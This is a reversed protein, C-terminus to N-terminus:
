EYQAKYEKPTLGTIKKFIYSFYAPDQYGVQEAIEYTLCNSSALMEKAKEIRSLNIYETISQGSEKKFIRSLYSANVHLADAIVKLHLTYQLHTDIYEVAQIVIKSYSNQNGVLNKQLYEMFVNIIDELEYINKADGIHQIITNDPGKIGKKLLIRFGIYFIQICINKVDAPNMFKTKIQSFLISIYKKAGTFNFHIIESELEYLLLTEATSLSYDPTEEQDGLYSINSESYFTLSLAYIAETAAINFEQMTHHRRSIGISIQQQYLSFIIDSIEQYIAPLDQAASYDTEKPCYIFMVFHNYRYCYGSISQAMIIEKLSGIYDQTTMLQFATIYYDTLAIGYQDLKDLFNGPEASLTLEQFLQERLFTLESEKLSDKQYSIIMSEQIQQVSAILKDKAVPKIIYDSVGYKIASQAYQFDAFGTLIIVQIHPFYQRIYKALSLGDVEPMRIDTIVIHIPMENLIKIAEKGDSATAAITCDLNKWNIFQSIGKRIPTEDDVILLNFIM